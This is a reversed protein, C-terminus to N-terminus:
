KLQLITVQLIFQIRIHVDTVSLTSLSHRATVTHQPGTRPFRALRLTFTGRIIGFTGWIIGFTGRIIGFTGQVIGFTPQNLAGPKTRVRPAASSGLPTTTLCSRGTRWPTAARTGQPSCKAFNLSCKANHLSSKADIQCPDRAPFMQCFEPFM